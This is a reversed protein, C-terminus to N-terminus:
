HIEPTCPPWKKAKKKQPPPTMKFKTYSSFLCVDGKKQLLKVFVFLRCGIVPDFTGLPDLLSSVSFLTTNQPFAHPDFKTLGTYSATTRLHTTKVDVHNHNRCGCRKENSHIDLLKTYWSRPSQMCSLVGQTKWTLRQVFIDWLLASMPLRSTSWQRLLIRSELINQSERVDNYSAENYWQFVGGKIMIKNKTSMRPSATGVYINPLVVIFVSTRAASTALM